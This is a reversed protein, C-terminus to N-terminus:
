AQKQNKGSTASVASADFTQLSGLKINHEKLKKSLSAESAQLREMVNKEGVTQISVEGQKIRVIITELDVLGPIDIRVARNKPDEIIRPALDEWNALQRKREQAHDYAAQQPDVNGERIAETAQHQKSQHDQVASAMTTESSHLKSSLEHSDKTSKEEHVIKQIEKNLEQNELKKLEAQAEASLTNGLAASLGQTVRPSSNTLTTQNLVQEQNLAPENGRTETAAQQVKILENAFSLKGQAKTKTSSILSNANLNQPGNAKFNIQNQTFGRQM